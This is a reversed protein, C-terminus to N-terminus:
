FTSAFSAYSQSARNTWATSYNSSGAVFTFAGSVLKKIYWNGDKDEYGYYETSTSDDINSLSYADTPRVINAGTDRAWDSGNWIYNAVRKAQINDGTKEPSIHEAASIETHNKNFQDAM